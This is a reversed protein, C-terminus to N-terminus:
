DAMERIRKRWLVKLAAAASAKFSKVPFSANPPEAVNLAPVELISGFCTGLCSTTSEHGVNVSTRRFLSVINKYEVSDTESATVCRLAACRM